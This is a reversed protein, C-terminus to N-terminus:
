QKLLVFTKNTKRNLVYRVTRSLADLRRRINVKHSTICNCLHSNQGEKAAIVAAYAGALSTLIDRAKESKRDM